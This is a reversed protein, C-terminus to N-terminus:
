KIKGQTTLMGFHNVHDHTAKVITPGIYAKNTPITFSFPLLIAAPPVM